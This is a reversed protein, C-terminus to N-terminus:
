AKVAGEDVGVEHAVSARGAILPNVSDIRESDNQAYALRHLVYHMANLRARKKCDSKIVIWPADATDTSFFM